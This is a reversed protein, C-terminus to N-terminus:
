PQRSALIQQWQELGLNASIRTADLAADGIAGLFFPRRLVREFPRGRIRKYDRHFEDWPHESAPANSAVGGHFQHFTGEGLLLVYDLQPRALARQFLDLNVFGGGRAQFREDFGGLAIYDEKRMGFCGSEFLSGFWGLCGDAFWGTIQYLRYGDTKWECRQLLGDEVQQNYGELLSQNQQKPGIHFPVTAIFPRAFSDFARQALTFIGPSLIHAGDIIVLLRDGRADRCAANMSVAPSVATTDVYRYSFEPGFARVENASLPASSGHDIAIVEFDINEAGAQYARTLSHLTNAAERRNNFFNIIISLM